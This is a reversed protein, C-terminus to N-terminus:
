GRVEPARSAGEERAVETLRTRLEELLGECSAELLDLVRDFGDAGGYYPDPM